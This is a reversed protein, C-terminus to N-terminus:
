DLATSAQASVRTQDPRGFLLCLQLQEIHRKIFTGFSAFAPAPGPKTPIIFPGTSGASPNLFTSTNFCCPRSCIAVFLECFSGILPFKLLLGKVRPSRKMRKESSYTSSADKLSDESFLSVVNDQLRRHEGQYRM